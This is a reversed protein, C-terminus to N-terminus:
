PPLVPEFGTHAVLYRADSCYGLALPIEASEIESEFAIDNADCIPDIEDRFRDFVAIAERLAAEYIRTYQRTVNAFHVPAQRHCM